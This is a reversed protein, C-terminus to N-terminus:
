RKKGKSAMAIVIIIIIIIIWTTKDLKNFIGSVDIGGETRKIPEGTTKVTVTTSTFDQNGATDRAQCSLNYVGTYDTREYVTNTASTSLTVVSIVNQLDGLGTLNCNENGDLGSTADSVSSTYQFYRHLNVASYDTTITVVPDTNDIGVDAIIASTVNTASNNDAMCSFNYDYADAISEVSFAGSFAVGDHTTNALSGLVTHGVTTSNYVIWMLTTNHPADGIAKTCSFTIATYNKGTEPNAMTVAGSVLYITFVTMLIAIPLIAKQKQM